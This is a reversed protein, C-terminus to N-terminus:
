VISSRDNGYAGEGIIKCAMKALRDAENNGDSLWPQENTKHSKVHEFIIQIIGSNIVWKVYDRYEKTTRNKAEWIDLPWYAIGLYDHCITIRPMELNLALDIATIVSAIEGAVNRLKCTEPNTIAGNFEHKNGHQDLLFGGYGCVGTNPNYSGDVFAINKLKDM